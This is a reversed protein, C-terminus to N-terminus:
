LNKLPHSNALCQVINMLQSIAMAPAPELYLRILANIRLLLQVEM